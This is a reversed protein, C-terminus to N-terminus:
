AVAFVAITPLLLLHIVVECICMVGYKVKCYFVGMMIVNLFGEGV